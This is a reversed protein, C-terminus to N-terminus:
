RVASAPTQSYLGNESPWGGGEPDTESGAVRAKDKAASPMISNRALDRLPLPGVPRHMEGVPALGLLSFWYDRIPGATKRRSRLSRKRYQNNQRLM